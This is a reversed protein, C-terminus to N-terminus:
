GAHRPRRRVGSTRRRPLRDIEYCAHTPDHRARSRACSARNAHVRHSRFDLGLPLPMHSELQDFRADRCQCQQGNRERRLRGVHRDFAGMGVLAHRSRDHGVVVPGAEVGADVGAVAQAGRGPREAQSWVDLGLAPQDAARKAVVVLDARENVAEFAVEIPRVHLAADVANRAQEGALGSCSARWRGRGPRSHRRDSAQRVDGAAAGVAVDLRSGDVDGGPADQCEADLFWSPQVKPARGRIRRGRCNSPWSRIDRHRDRCSRRRGRATAVLTLKLSFM